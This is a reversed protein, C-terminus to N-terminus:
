RLKELVFHARRNKARCEDDTQTCLPKEKGYSITEMRNAPVGRSRLSDKVANARRDGLALNYETTGRDDCHGEIVVKMGNNKGLLDSLTVLVPSDEARVTYKDFDFHIDHVKSMMEDIRKQQEAAQMAAVEGATLEKSRVTGEKLDAKGDAPAAAKGQTTATGSLPEDSKRVTNRNACGAVIVCAAIFALALMIRKKM